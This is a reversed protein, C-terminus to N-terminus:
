KSKSESDGDDEDEDEFQNVHHASDALSGVPSLNVSIQVSADEVEPTESLRQCQSTFVKETMRLPDLGITIVHQINIQTM